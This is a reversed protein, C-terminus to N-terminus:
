KSAFIEQITKSNQQCNQVAAASQLTGHKCIEILKFFFYKPVADIKRFCNFGM